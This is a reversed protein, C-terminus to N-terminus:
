STKPRYSGHDSYLQPDFASDFFSEAFKGVLRGNDCAVDTVIKCRSDTHIDSQYWYM